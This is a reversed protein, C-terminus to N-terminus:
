SSEVKVMAGASVYLRLDCYGWVICDGHRVCSRTAALYDYLFTPGSVKAVACARKYRKYKRSLVCMLKIFAYSFLLVLM